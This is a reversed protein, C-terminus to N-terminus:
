GDYAFCKKFVHELLNIIVATAISISGTGEGLSQTEMPNKMGFCVVCEVSYKGRNEGFMKLLAPPM